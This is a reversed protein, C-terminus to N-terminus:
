FISKKWKEILDKEILFGIGQFIGSLFNTDDVFKRYEKYCKCFEIIQKKDIQIQM